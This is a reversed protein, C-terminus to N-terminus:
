MDGKADKKAREGDKKKKKPRWNAKMLSENEILQNLLQKLNTVNSM